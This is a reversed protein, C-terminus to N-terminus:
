RLRQVSLRYVVYDRLAGIVFPHRQGVACRITAPSLFVASWAPRTRSASQVVGDDSRRMRAYCYPLRLSASAIAAAAPSAADLSFFWVGRDDGRRVYTRVNLEHFRSIGPLMPMGRLRADCVTFPTLSVFARRQYTDLELRPPVLARLAEEPVEFHLFLLRDWRQYGIVM